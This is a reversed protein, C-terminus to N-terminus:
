REGSIPEQFLLERLSSDPVPIRFTTSRDRKNHTSTYINWFFAATALTLFAIAGAFSNTTLTQALSMIRIKREGIKKPSVARTIGRREPRRM